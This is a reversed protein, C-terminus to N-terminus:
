VADENIEVTSYWLESSLNITENNAKKEAVWVHILDKAAETAGEIGLGHTTLGLSPVHAYYHGPSFDPDQIKEFIIGYVM